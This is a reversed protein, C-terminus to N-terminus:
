AAVEIQLSFFLLENETKNFSYNLLQNSERFMRLLGLGAGGKDSLEGKSLQELYLSHLKDSDLSVMTNLKRELKEASHKTLHNGALITYNGGKEALAVLCKTEALKEDPNHEAHFIVNQLCEILINIINKKRRSNAKTARLKSDSIQLISSM